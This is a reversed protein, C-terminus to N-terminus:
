EGHRQDIRPVQKARSWRFDCIPNGAALTQTRKLQLDIMEALPYDLMCWTAVGLDAANQQQFFDAVPCRVVNFGIGQEIPHYRARYGPPNFPFSMPWSGDPRVRKKHNVIPDTRFWRRLFQGYKGWIQYIQWCVDGVLEIGEEKSVGSALLSQYFALTIAALQVNMRSGFTPEHSVDVDMVDLARWTVAILTDVETTSFRGLRLDHRSRNRGVLARRAAWRTMPQVLMKFRKSMKGM